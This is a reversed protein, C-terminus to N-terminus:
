RKVSISGNREREREGEGWQHISLDHIDLRATSRIRNPATVLRRAPSGLLASCLFPTVFLVRCRSFVCFFFFAASLPSQTFRRRLATLTHTQARKRASLLCEGEVRGELSRHSGRTSLVLLSMCKVSLGHYHCLRAFILCVAQEQYCQCIARQTRRFLCLTLDEAGYSSYPGCLTISPSQNYQHRSVSLLKLTCNCANAM